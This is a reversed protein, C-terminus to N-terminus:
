ATVMFFKPQPQSKSSSIPIYKQAEDDWTLLETQLMKGEFNKLVVSDRAIMLKKDTFNSANEADIQSEFEGDSGFTTVRVGHSFEDHPEEVDPYRDIQGAQVTFSM